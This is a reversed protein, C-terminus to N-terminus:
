TRWICAFSNSGRAAQKPHTASKRYTVRQNRDGTTGELRGFRQFRRGPRNRQANRSTNANISYEGLAVADRHTWQLLMHDGIGNASHKILTRAASCMQLWPLSNIKIRIKTIGHCKLSWSDISVTLSSYRAFATHSRNEPQGAHQICTAQLWHWALIARWDNAGNRIWRFLIFCLDWNFNLLVNLTRDSVRQM